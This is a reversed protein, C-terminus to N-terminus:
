HIKPAVYLLFILTITPTIISMIKMVIFLVEYFISINNREGILKNHRRFHTIFMIKTEYSSMYSILTRNRFLFDYKSKLVMVNEQSTSKHYVIKLHSLNLHSNCFIIM